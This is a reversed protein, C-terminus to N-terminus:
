FHKKAKEIDNCVETCTKVLYQKILLMATTDDAFAMRIVSYEDHPHYKKFGVYTMENEQTKDLYFMQYLYHELLYGMTYDEHELIIDYSNEISSITVSTYGIDRSDSTSHIPVIQSQIGKILNEFKNKLIECAYNVLEQNTYVGLTKVVFDFENPEGNEDKKFCRQADLFQFNKREFEIEENSINEDKLKQLQVAWVDEKYESDIVNQFSCKSVVNFMGNEKATSVSFDATLQIQEGDVNGIAPRLRLFDIPHNTITDRPFIKNVEADELFQGTNKEQIKFDDTTVWRIEHKSENKVNVVLRYSKIFRESINGKVHIPINSLRQKVIENHFRTTNATIKCTNIESTETRIVVTPIDSLITRRIANAYSVHVDKITFHLGYEDEYNKVLSMTIRKINHISIFVIFVKIDIKNEIKM